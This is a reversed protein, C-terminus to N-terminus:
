EAWVGLLGKPRVMLIVLLTFLWITMTWAAGLQYVVFAEIVGLILAAICAGNTSGLGGFVVIVFAKLFPGWGGLPSILFIPALLMGAVGALMVSLGFSLGFIRNVEIGVMNAAHMDQAVARVAFGYRTRRLFLEILSVVAVAVFFVAVKYKSLVVGYFAVTGEVFPPLVKAVPGFLILNLNDLFFALGLTAMMSSTKWNLGWRLPRILARELGMGLLFLVPMLILLTFFYNLKFYGASLIWAIYAGTMYLSGHAFNLVRSTGYVLSLGFAIVAYIAGQFIGGILVEFFQQM